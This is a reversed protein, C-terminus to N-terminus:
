ALPRTRRVRLVRGLVVGGACALAFVAGVALGLGVYWAIDGFGTEDGPIDEHTFLWVCALSAPVVAALLSTWRPRLAGLAVFAALM